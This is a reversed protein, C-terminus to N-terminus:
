AGGLGILAEAHTTSKDANMNFAVQPIIEEPIDTYTAVTRKVVEWYAQQEEYHWKLSDHVFDVDTPRRKDGSMREARNRPNSEARTPSEVMCAELIPRIAQHIRHDICVRDEGLLWLGFNAKTARAYYDAENEPAVRETAAEHEEHIRERPEAVVRRGIWRYFAKRTDGSNLAEAIQEPADSNMFRKASRLKTESDLTEAYFDSLDSDGTVFARFASELRTTSTRVSGSLFAHTFRVREPTVDSGLMERLELMNQYGSRHNHEQSKYEAELAEITARVDADTNPSAVPTRVYSLNAPQM